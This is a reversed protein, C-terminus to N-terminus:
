QWIVNGNGDSDIDIRGTTKLTTQTLSSVANVKFDVGNGNAVATIATTLTGTTAANASPTSASIIVTVTGAKNWAAFAVTDYQVQGDTTDDAHTTLKLVGGIYAKSPVAVNVVLTASSETLTIEHGCINERTIRGNATASTARNSYTCFGTDGGKGAGTGRGGDLFVDGAPIDTGIGNQGTLHYELPKTAASNNTGFAWVGADSTPNGGLYITAAGFDKFVNGKLKAVGLNLGGTVAEATAEMYQGVSSANWFRIRDVDFELGFGSQSSFNAVGGASTSVFGLPGTYVAKVRASSTGILYGTSVSTSDVNPTIDGQQQGGHAASSGIVWADQLELLDNGQTEGAGHTTHIKAYNNANAASEFQLATWIDPASSTVKNYIRNTISNTWPTGAYQSRWEILNGNPQLMISDGVENTNPTFRAIYNTTGHILNPTQNTIISKVENTFAASGLINSWQLTGTGDTDTLVSNAPGHVTPWGAYSLGRILSMSGVADVQFVKTGNNTRLTLLPVGTSANDGLFVSSEMQPKTFDPQVLGFVGIFQGSNGETISFGYAGLNTAGNGFSDAVGGHGALLKEAGSAYGLSGIAVDGATGVSSGVNGVSGITGGSGSFFLSSWSTNSSATFNRAEIGINQLTRRNNDPSDVQLGRSFTFNTQPIYVYKVLNSVPTITGLDNTWVQSGGGSMPVWKNRDGTRQVTYTDVPANTPASVYPVQALATLSLFVFLLLLIKM